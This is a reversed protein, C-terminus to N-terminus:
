KSLGLTRLSDTDGVFLSVTGPRPPDTPTADFEGLLAPVLDSGEPSVLYTRDGSQLLVVRQDGGARIRAESFANVLRGLRGMPWVDETTLEIKHWPM